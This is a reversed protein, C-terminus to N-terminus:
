FSSPRGGLIFGPRGRLTLDTICRWCEGSPDSGDHDAPEGSWFSESRIKRFIDVSIIQDVKEVAMALVGM